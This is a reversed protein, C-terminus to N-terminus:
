VAALAADTRARPDIGEGSNEWTRCRVVVATVNMVYGRMSNQNVNVVQIVGLVYAGDIKGFRFVDNRVFVGPALTMRALAVHVVISGVLPIVHTAALWGKLKLATPGVTRSCGAIMAQVPAVTIWCLRVRSIIADPEHAEFYRVGTGADPVIFVREVVLVEIAGDLREAHRNPWSYVDRVDSEMRRNLLRAPCIIAGLSISSIAARRPINSLVCAGDGPVRFSKRLILVRVRNPKAGQIVESKIRVLRWVRRICRYAEKLGASGHRSQDLRRPIHRCRGRRRCRCGAWCGRRCRSWRRCRAATEYYSLYAAADLWAARVCAIVAIILHSVNRKRKRIRAETAVKLLMLTDELPLAWNLVLSLAKVFTHRGHDPWSQM